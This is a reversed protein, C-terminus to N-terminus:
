GAPRLRPRTGCGRGAASRRGDWVRSLVPASASAARPSAPAPPPARPPAPRGRPSHEPRPAQRRRPAPRSRRPALPEAPAQEGGEAAVAEPDLQLPGVPAVVPGAVAPERRSASRSPTGQTAVPLTWEWSRRRARRCSAKTATPRPSVSSSDSGCGARCGCSPGPRGALRHRRAEGLVGLRDGLGSRRASRSRKSRVSRARSGSDACRPRRAGVALEGLEAAVAEALAVGALARRARPAFARRSSSSAVIRWRPREPKKRRWWSRSSSARSTAASTRPGRSPGRRGAVRAAAAAGADARDDAVEGAEGVDVRDLRVEEGAAEEVLFDVADIGSMSRSKGRSMRSTSIGRTCSRRRRRGSPGRRRRGSRGGARRRGRGRCPAPGAAPPSRSPPSSPRSGRTWAPLDLAVDIAAIPGSRAATAASAPAAAARRPPSPGAGGRRGASRRSPSRSGLRQDVDARDHRRRHLAALDDLPVLVGAGVGAEELDVQQPQPHEGRDLAADLLDLRARPSRSSRERIGSSSVSVKSDIRAASVVPTKWISLRACICISGRVWGRSM